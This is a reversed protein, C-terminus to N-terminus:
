NNILRNNFSNDIHSVGHTSPYFSGGFCYGRNEPLLVFLRKHEDIRLLREKAMNHSQPDEYKCGKWIPLGSKTQKGTEKVIM